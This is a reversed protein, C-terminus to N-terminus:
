PELRKWAEASLPVNGHAERVLDEAISRWVKLDKEDGWERRDERGTRGTSLHALLKDADLFRKKEEADGWDGRISRGLLSLSTIDRDDSGGGPRCSHAFEMITRFHAAYAVRMARWVFDPLPPPYWDRFAHHLKILQSLDHDVHKWAQDRADEDAESV